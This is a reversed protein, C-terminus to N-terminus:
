HLNWIEGAYSTLDGLLEGKTRYTPGVAEPTGDPRPGDALWVFRWVGPFPNFYGLDTFRTRHIKFM